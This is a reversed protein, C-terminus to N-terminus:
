EGAQEKSGHEKAEEEAFLRELTKREAEPLSKDQLRRRFREINQRRVFRDV